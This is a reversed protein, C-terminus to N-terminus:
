KIDYLYVNTTDASFDDEEASKNRNKKLAVSSSTQTTTVLPNRAHSLMLSSRAPLNRKTSYLVRVACSATSIPKSLVLPSVLQTVSTSFVARTRRMLTIDM